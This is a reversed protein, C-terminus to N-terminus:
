NELGPRDDWYRRANANTSQGNRDISSDFYSIVKGTKLDKVGFENTTPDWRYVKNELLSEKERVGPSKDGSMLDDAAKAYDGEDYLNLDRGHDGFHQRLGAPSTWNDKAKQIDADDDEYGPTLGLLDFWTFPNHVYAVPNPSPSLGLPDPSFFRATEPDYTRFYNHHLGSEADFYQGPFRLPTYGTADRNWTTAGWVTSRTRWAIEGDEGILEKPTGILDTVIAFFREDVAEQSVDGIRERQTLPHHGDHDWTLTVPATTGTTTQECLTTGDWTFLTEEAVDGDSALRQKAIRRGLPDYRYRWRTGDPTVVASLRSEADWEYRWTDPKRSLRTKQRLVVRGQADHEYRVSGARTIRTGAYVREGRAESGPHRDPWSASVQSGTEDYAYQESWAGADVGTVRGVADLTFSRLGNLADDVATLHGDARYSYGRRQLVRGDLGVVHQGTVRGRTDFDQTLTLVDDLTRGVERGAADRAFSLTRGSTALESRSGDAAFTWRSEAGAPTTRVARRGLEDYAHVLTRDEVTESRLRGHRDRLRTLTTGDPGVASALEDFIDFEYTTVGDATEKRVVQGLANHTYRVPAAGGDTRLVMRGAADYAYTLTRGDFDTESVLRGAADYVYTWAMGQPGTVRLPRLEADYAFEHRVGDPATRAALLDFHTYEYSTTHGSADTRTLCNGEGDYTWSEESGDPHVRRSPKGEVTWQMRTVEGLPDTRSVVRGFVDREFLTVGGVPDTIRVPLGAGDNEVRTVAGLPNTLAILRGRDDHEMVTTSGTPSTMSTRNGREDWTQRFVRGDPNVVTVPLGLEDYEMTGSRGDPRVLSSLRGQEDYSWRTVAGLPDFEAILRGHRDYEHRTVAGLEDVRAVVRYKDDVLYRRTHGDGTTATTVRHGTGPDVTDYTLTLAMHGDTGGEAICRDEDDYVYDYRRDNTDTWSVIRGRDDYAFCLPLGSSNTVETLNGDTYGYATIRPGGVLRLSTIRGEAAEFRLHYGGSHAIGLPTGAEDWEFVIVNGNRDELQTIPAREWGAQSEAGYVSPTFRRTHGREPDTLTYEGDPTRELPRRPGSAPLVPVGPAPHPYALRLGDETLLVVGAADIELHQDITSSWSPGFWRGATYGSEARRTFVLPLTGPLAVDTLPLFMKGTALDIPDTDDDVKDKDKKDNKENGDKDLEKRGPGDLDDLHKAASGVKKVSGLGKSGILEPLLKGVGEAPDKMFDDLMTKGAGIPDNAMTVLGAVTSNLSTAYEAPHTINYPDTPSVSRVFTLIGATGKVIGGFVHLESIMRGELGDKFQEGYSPKPPAADRAKRVATRTTEAVENRQRRASDLKDQAASAMAKGPDTFDGPKPPLTEKEAKVADNYEDVKKNHADRADDSAKKAANYDDLAQKAQAQAWEVTEAFRGLADSADACADAAKFWRPPEKALSERFADAGEGKLGDSDMGKLGNGVKGFARAFDTLHSAQARIKSVSGYVLKQPDDTQGLEMEAVDAGLQNAASRSKERIWDGADELGVKDALGAVKDGTWEVADGVDEARDEVWDEVPDPIFDGIGM